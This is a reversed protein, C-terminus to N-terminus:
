RNSLFRGFGIDMLRWTANITPYIKPTGDDAQYVLRLLVEKTSESGDQVSTIAITANAAGPAVDDLSIIKFNRFVTRDFRIRIDGARESPTRNGSDYLLEALKGYNKVDWYYFFKAITQEPSGNEYCEPTGSEPLTSGIILERPTWERMQRETKALDSIQELLDAPSPVSKKPESNKSRRRAVAWDAIASLAAWCKAAVAKNAYGLDRGHLIGHRYPLTLLETTTKKRSANFIASLKKLGTSHGAISDWATVDTRDTFFGTQAVDNVLGDILMLILPVAAYYREALYDEKASQSLEWRGKFADTWKCRSIVFDVTKADYHSILMAEGKEADGLQAAQVASKALEVNMSEHAIWGRDAFYANFVDPLETLEETTKLLGPAGELIKDFSPTKLGAKKALECFLAIAKAQEASDTLERLSPNSAIRDSGDERPASSPSDDEKM